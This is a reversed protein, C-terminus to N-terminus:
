KCEQNQAQVWAFYNHEHILVKRGVRIIAGAQKLGNSEANFIQYRLGGVTFAPHRKAFQQVTSFIWAPQLSENQLQKM